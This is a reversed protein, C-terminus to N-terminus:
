DACPLPVLEDGEPKGKLQPDLTSRLVLARSPSGNIVAVLSEGRKARCALEKRIEIATLESSKLLDRFTDGDTFYVSTALNVTM